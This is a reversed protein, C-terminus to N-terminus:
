EGHILGLVEGNRSDIAIEFVGGKIFYSPMTGVIIWCNNILDINYPQQRLIEKKGYIKFLYTEAIKIAMEENDILTPKWNLTSYREGKALESYYELSEKKDLKKWKDTTCSYSFASIFLIILLYNNCFKM